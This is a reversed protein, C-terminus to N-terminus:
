VVELSVVSDREGEDLLLCAARPNNILKYLRNRRDAM